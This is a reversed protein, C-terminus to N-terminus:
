RGVARHPRSKRRDASFYGCHRRPYCVAGACGGAGDKRLGDRRATRLAEGPETRQGACIGACAGPYRFAAACAGYVGSPNHDGYGARGRFAGASSGHAAARDPPQPYGRQLVDPGAGPVAAGEPRFLPLKRLNGECASRQIHHDAEEPVARGRLVDSAIEAGRHLRVGAPHGPKEKLRLM